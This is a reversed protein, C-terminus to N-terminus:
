TVLGENDSAVGMKVSKLSVYEYKMGDLLAANLIVKGITEQSLLMRTKGIQRHKLVRILGVGQTVWKMEWTSAKAKVEFLM